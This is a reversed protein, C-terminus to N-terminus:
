KMEQRLFSRLSSFAHGSPMYGFRSLLSSLSSFKERHKRKVRIVYILIETYMSLRDTCSFLVLCAERMHVGIWGCIDVHESMCPCVRTHTRFPGVPSLSVPRRADDQEERAYSSSDRAFTCRRTLLLEEGCRYPDICICVRYVHATPRRHGYRAPPRKLHTWIFDLAHMYLPRSFLYLPCSLLLSLRVTQDGEDTIHETQPSHPLLSPFLFEVVHRIKDLLVGWPCCCRCEERKGFSVGGDNEAPPSLDAAPSCFLSQDLLFFNAITRPLFREGECVRRWVDFGCVGGGGREGLCMYLRGQVCAHM